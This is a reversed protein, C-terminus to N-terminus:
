LSFSQLSWPPAINTMISNAGLIPEGSPMDRETREVPKEM